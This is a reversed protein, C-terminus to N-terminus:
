VPDALESLLREGHQLMRKRQAATHDRWGGLHLIGHILLRFLARQISEGDERAQRRAAQLNLYIESPIGASEDAPFAMVDTTSDDSFFTCHLRRLEADGAIIVNINFKWGQTELVARALTRLIRHYDRGM